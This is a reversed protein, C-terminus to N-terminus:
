PPETAESRTTAGPKPSAERHQLGRHQFFHQADMGARRELFPLLDIVNDTRTSPTLTPRDPPEPSEIMFGASTFQIRTPHRDKALTELSQLRRRESLLAVVPAVVCSIVIAILVAGRLQDTFELLVPSVMAYEKLV